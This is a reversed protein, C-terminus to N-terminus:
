AKAKIFKWKQLFFQSRSKSILDKFEIPWLILKKNGCLSCFQYLFLPVSKKLYDDKISFTKRQIPM